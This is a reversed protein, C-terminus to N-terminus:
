VDDANQQNSRALSILEQSMDEASRPNKPDHRQVVLKDHTSYKKLEPHKTGAQRQWALNQSGDGRVEGVDVRVDRNAWATQGPDRADV